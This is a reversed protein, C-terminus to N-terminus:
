IQVIQLCATPFINSYCQATNEASAGGGGGGGAALFDVVALFADVSMMRYTCIYGLFFAKLCNEYINYKVLCM